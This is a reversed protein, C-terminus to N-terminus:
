QQVFRIAYVVDNEDRVIDAFFTKGPNIFFSSTPGTVNETGTVGDLITRTYDKYILTGTEKSSAGGSSKDEIDAISVDSVTPHETFFRNSTSASYSASYNDGRSSNIWGYYAMSYTENGTKNTGVLVKVKQPDGGNLGHICNIVTDGSVIKNNFVEFFANDLLGQQASVSNQGKAMINISSTVFWWGIGALVLIGIIILVGDIKKGFIEM